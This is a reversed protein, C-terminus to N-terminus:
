SLSLSSLSSALIHTPHFPSTIDFVDLLLEKKVKEQEKSELNIKPAIVFCGCQVTCNYFVCAKFALLRTGTLV